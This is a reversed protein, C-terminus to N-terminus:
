SIVGGGRRRSQGGHEGADAIIVTAHSFTGSSAGLPEVIVSVDSAVASGALPVVSMMACTISDPPVGGCLPVSTM